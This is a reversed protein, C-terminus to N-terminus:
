ESAHGPLGLRERLFTEARNMIDPLFIAIGAHSGPYWHIPGEGPCAQRLRETCHRPFIEDSKANLMLVGDRPLRHAWSLPDIPTLIESTADRDLGRERLLREMGSTESSGNFLVTALDGGGLVLVCAAFGPDMGSITTGLTAGLSVGLLSIREADVEPRQALWDRCAHVDGVSQGLLNTLQVLDASVMKGEDGRRPGYGPFWVVLCSFGRQAFWSGLALELTQDDQLHHLIVIAPQPEESPDAPCLYRAAVTASPHDPDVVPAPSPFRLDFTRVKGLDAAPELTFPLGDANERLSKRYPVSVEQKFFRRAVAPTSGSRPTPGGLPTLEFTGRVTQAAVDGDTRPTEQAVTPVLGGAVVLVATLTRIM